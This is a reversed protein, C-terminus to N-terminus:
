PRRHELLRRGLRNGGTTRSDRIRAPIDFEPRGLAFAEGIDPQALRSRARLFRGPGLTGDLKREQGVSLQDTDQLERGLPVVIPILGDGLADVRHTVAQLRDVAIMQAHAGIAVVRQEQRRRLILDSAGGERLCSSSRLASDAPVLWGATKKNSSPVEQPM